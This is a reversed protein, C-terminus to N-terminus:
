VPRDARPLRLRRDLLVHQALTTIRHAVQVNAVCAPEARRSVVELRHGQERAPNSRPPAVRRGCARDRPDRHFRDQTTSRVVPQATATATALTEIAVTETMM